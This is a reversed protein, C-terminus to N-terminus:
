GKENDVHTSLKERRAKRMQEVGHMMREKRVHAYIQTTSVSEHGLLMQVLRLDGTAELVDTAFSHRLKHPTLGDVGARKGAGWFLTKFSTYAKGTKPNRFVLDAPKGKAGSLLIRHALPPLPVLRDKDGKGHLMITGAALSVQRWKLSAVEDFRAGAEYMIIVAALKAPENIEDIFREVQEPTFTRPKPRRYRPVSVKFGLGDAPALDNTAMWRVLTQFYHLEKEVSRKKGHRARQYLTIHAPTIARVPYAGFVQRIWKSCYAMDKWTKEARNLKVWGLFEPIVENIAPHLRAAGPSTHRQRRVEAEFLRAEAESGRFPLFKRKGRRGDPRYDIQWWGPGKTPHPRIAM